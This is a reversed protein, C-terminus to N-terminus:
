SSATTAAITDKTAKKYLQLLQGARKLLDGPTEGSQYDIWGASYTVPINEGSLNIELTGIRDLIIKGGGSDCEPLMLLFDDGGLRVPFDCGRIAKRLRRAFEQLVQDSTAGGYRANLEALDDLHIAILCLPTEQRRARSIEKGLQMEVSGRTYFGTVPDFEADEDLEVMSEDAGQEMAQKRLRRFYWQRYVMWSNFILLLGLVGREAQGFRLEYFHEKLLFLAPFSSLLFVVASLLTVALASFWLWWERRRLWRQVHQLEQADHESEGM